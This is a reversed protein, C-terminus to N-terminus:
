GFNMSVNASATTRVISRYRPPRGSCTTAPRQRLKVDKVGIEHWSRVLKGEQERPDAHSGRSKGQAEHCGKRHERGVATRLNDDVSAPHVQGLHGAHGPSLHLGAGSPDQAADDRGLRAGRDAPRLYADAAVVDARLAGEGVSVAPVLETVKGRAAEAQHRLFGSVHRHLVPLGTREFGPFRDLQGLALHHVLGLDRHRAARHYRAADDVLEAIGDGIRRHARHARDPAVALAPQLLGAAVRLGVVEALVAQEAQRGTLVVDACGVAAGVHGDHLHRHDGSPSPAPRRTRRRGGAIGRGVEWPGGAAGLRLADRDATPWSACPM